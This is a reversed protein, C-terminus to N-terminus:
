QGEGETKKALAEARLDLIARVEDPTLGLHFAQVLAQDLHRAVVERKQQKSMEVGGEAVFTGAGRRTEVIKERELQNYAKNITNPNVRLQVALERVSPLQDGSKLAGSAISHKVQQIIQLYIPLGKGDDIQLFM